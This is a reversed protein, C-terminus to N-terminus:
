PDLFNFDGHGAHTTTDSGATTHCGTCLTLPYLTGTTTGDVVTTSPLVVEYWYFNTGDGDPGGDIAATDATQKIEVAYGTIGTGGDAGSYIEKVAAAGVPSVTGAASGHLADNSCVRVM